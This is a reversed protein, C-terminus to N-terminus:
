EYHTAGYSETPIGATVMVYYEDPGDPDPLFDADLGRADLWEMTDLCHQGYSLREQNNLEEALEEVKKKLAEAEEETACYQYKVVLHNHDWWGGEEDGGKYEEKMMLTVYFGKAEKAEKCVADFAQRIFRDSM